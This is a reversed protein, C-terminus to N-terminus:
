AARVIAKGHAIVDDRHQKQDEVDLRDKQQGPCNDKHAIIKRKRLKRQDLHKDENPNQNHTQVVGPAFARKFPRSTIASKSNRIESKSSVCSHITLLLAFVMYSEGNVM